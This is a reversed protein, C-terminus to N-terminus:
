EESPCPTCRLRVQEQDLTTGADDISELVVLIGDADNCRPTVDGHDLISAGYPDIAEIDPDFEARPVDSSCSDLLAHVGEFRCRPLLENKCDGPKRRDVYVVAVDCRTAESVTEQIPSCPRAAPPDQLAASAGAAM